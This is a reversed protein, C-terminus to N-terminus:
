SRVGRIIIRSGAGIFTKATSVFAIKTCPMDPRNLEDTTTNAKIALASGYGNSSVSDALIERTSSYNTSQKAVAKNMKGDVTNIHVFSYVTLETEKPSAKIGVCNVSGWTESNVVMQCPNNVTQGSMPKAAMFMTFEKLSFPNGNMDTTFVVKGVDEVFTTDVITEWVDTGGSGPTTFLAGTEDVGVEQTMDETKAVPKVGGLTDATAIPLEYKKGGGVPEWGTETRVRLSGM